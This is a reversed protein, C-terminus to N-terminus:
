LLKERFTCHIATSSCHRLLGDQDKYIINSVPIIFRKNRCVKYARGPKGNKRQKPEKVYGFMQIDSYKEHIEDFRNIFMNQITRVNEVVSDPEEVLMITTPVSVLNDKKFNEFHAKSRYNKEAKYAIRGVLLMRGYVRSFYDIEFGFQKVNSTSYDSDDRCLFCEFFEM